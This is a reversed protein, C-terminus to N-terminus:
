LYNHRNMGSICTYAHVQPVGQVPINAGICRIAPFHQPYSVLLHVLLPRTPVPAPQPRKLLPPTGRRAPRSVYRPIRSASTVTQSGPNSRVRPPPPSLARPSGAAPSRLPSAPGRRAREFCLRSRAYCLVPVSIRRVRYAPTPVADTVLLLGKSGRLGSPGCSGSRSM